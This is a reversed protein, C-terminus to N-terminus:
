CFSCLAFLVARPVAFSTNFGIEHCVPDDVVEVVGKQDHYSDEDECRIDEAQGAQRVAKCSWSRGVVEPSVGACSRVRM